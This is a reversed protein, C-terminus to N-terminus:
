AIRPSRQTLVHVAIVPASAPGSGAPASTPPLTRCADRKLLTRYWRAAAVALALAVWSM